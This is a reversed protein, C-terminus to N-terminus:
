ADEEGEPSNWFKEGAHSLAELLNSSGGETEDPLMIQLKQIELSEKKAYREPWKTKLWMEIARFDPRVYKKVSRVVAASEDGVSVSEEFYYGTALRFLSNEVQYNAQEKGNELATCITCNDDKWNYLQRRSIGINNAIQEMSLGDRAWGEILALKGPTLWEDIKPKRAM